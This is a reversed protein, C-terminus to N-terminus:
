GHTEPKVPLLLPCSAKVVGRERRNYRIRKDKMLGLWTPWDLWEEDSVEEDAPMGYHESLTRLRLGRRRAPITHLGAVGEQHSVQGGGEAAAPERAYAAIRRLAAVVGEVEVYDYLLEAGDTYLRRSALAHAIGM